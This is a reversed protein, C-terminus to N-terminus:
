RRFDSEEIKIIIVTINDNGGRKNALNILKRSALNLDRNSLILCAIEFKKVLPSALSGTLGDSCIILIDDPALLISFIDPKVVKEGVGLAQSLIHQFPYYQAEVLTLRGAKVLEMLPTHDWTLQRLKSRRLLYVKSDGIHAILAREDDIYVAELTTGMNKGLKQLFTHAKDISLKLRELPPLHQEKDWSKVIQEIALRSAMEGAEHGGMGDALLFLRKETDFWFWDENIERKGKDTLASVIM